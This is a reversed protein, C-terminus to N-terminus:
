GSLRPKRIGDEFEVDVEFRGIHEGRLFELRDGIETTCSVVKRRGHDEELVIDQEFAPELRFMDLRPQKSMSSGTRSQNQCVRVQIHEDPIFVLLHDEYNSRTQWKEKV